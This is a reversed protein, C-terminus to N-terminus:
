GAIVFRPDYFSLGKVEGEEDQYLIVVYNGPSDPSITTIVEEGVRVLVEGRNEGLELTSMNLRSVTLEEIRQLGQAAAEVRIEPIDCVSVFSARYGREVDSQRLRLIRIAWQPPDDDNEAPLLEAFAILSLTEGTEINIRTSGAEVGEKEIRIEHSGARLGIGGTRQGLRYGRQHINDGNLKVTTNGEGPAVANVIRIFGVEPGGGQAAATTPLCVALLFLVIINSIAKM